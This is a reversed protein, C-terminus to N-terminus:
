NIKHKMVPAHRLVHTKAGDMHECSIAQRECFACREVDCGPHHTHGTKAGCDPCRNSDSWTGDYPKPQAKRGDTAEILTQACGDAELMHQHCFRCKAGKHAPAKTSKKKGDTM